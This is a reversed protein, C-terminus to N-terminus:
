GRGRETLRVTVRATRLYRIDALMQLTKYKTIVKIEMDDLDTYELFRSSAEHRSDQFRLNELLAKTRTFRM